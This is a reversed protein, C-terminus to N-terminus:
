CAQMASVILSPTIPIRVLQMRCSEDGCCMMIGFKSQNCYCYARKGANSEPDGPDALVDHDSMRVDGKYDHNDDVMVTGTASTWDVFSSLVDWLRAEVINLGPRMGPDHEWMGGLLKWLADAADSPLGGLHNPRRPREGRQTALLASMRNVHEAFPQQLTAMELITM